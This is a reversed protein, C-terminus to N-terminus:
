YEEENELIEKATNYCDRCIYLYPQEEDIDKDGNEDFILKYTPDTISGCCRCEHTSEAEEYAFIDLRVLQNFLEDNIAM